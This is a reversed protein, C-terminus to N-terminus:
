TTSKFHYNKMHMQLRFQHIARLYVNGIELLLSQSFPADSTVRFQPTKEELQRAVLGVFPESLKTQQAVEQLKEQPLFRAPSDIVAALLLQEVHEDSPLPPGYSESPEPLVAGRRSRINPQSSDPASTVPQCSPTSGRMNSM